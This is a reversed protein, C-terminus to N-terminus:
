LSSFRPNPSAFALFEPDRELIAMREEDLTIWAEIGRGDRTEILVTLNRFAPGVKGMPAVWFPEGWGFNTETFGLYSWCTFAFLDPKELSFLEELQNCYESMTEFGEEGQLSQTYDSEYLATAGNLTEVLEPLQTKPGMPNVLATAWWYANGTSAHSMPPKTRSRLDVAEVLISPKPSDSKARSAAIFSKWIFCTLAQIRSTKVGPKGAIAMAKFTAIAKANFVFRRTIYSGETFWLTEMLSLHSQPISDRPPFFLSAQEFDPQKIDNCDGRTIAAWTAFLAKSTAGDVIKHSAAGAIAMGGCTFVNFQLALPPAEMNEKTFPQCPLLRNLSEIESHKLFDSLRCNVQAEIFPVGEHFSDIFRNGKVRGSLPYFINLTETLSKKCRDIKTKTIDNSNVDHMHYFFIVTSYTTPTLQDFLSLKYPKKHQVAPSSPKFVERSVIHVEMKM